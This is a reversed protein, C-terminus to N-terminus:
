KNCKLSVVTHRSAPVHFPLLDNKGEDTVKDVFDEPDSFNPEDEDYGNEEINDKFRDRSESELRKKLGKDDAM